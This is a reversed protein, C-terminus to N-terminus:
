APQPLPKKVLNSATAGRSVIVDNVAYGEFIVEGDRWVNGELMTRREEEFDGAIMPALASDKNSCRASWCANATRDWNAILASRARAWRRTPTSASAGAAFRNLQIERARLVRERIQASSETKSDSARLEKYNVAPVDIHIDIRDMLPGSIKSVYRQIM